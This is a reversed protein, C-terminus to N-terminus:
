KMWDTNPTFTGNKLIAALVEQQRQLYAEQKQPTLHNHESEVMPIAEKAAPIQNFATFVGAPPSTTDILGFAVVPSIPWAM